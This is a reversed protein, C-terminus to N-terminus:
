HAWEEGQDTFAGFHVTGSEPRLSLVEGKDLEGPGEKMEELM